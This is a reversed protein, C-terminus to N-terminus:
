LAEPVSPHNPCHQGLPRFAHDWNILVAVLDVREEIWQKGAADSPSGSILPNPSDPAFM